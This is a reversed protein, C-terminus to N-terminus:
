CKMNDSKIINLMNIFKKVIVKEAFKEAFIELSKEKMAEITLKDTDILLEIKDCLEEINQPEFLFGNDEVLPILGGTNGFLPLNKTAISELAFMSMGEFRSPLVSVDSDTLYRLTEDHTARDIFKIFYLGNQKAKNVLRKKHIGEGIVVFSLKEDLDKRKHNLLILANLLDDVGKQEYKTEEMSALCLFKLKETIKGINHTNDFNVSSNDFTNPILCFVKESIKYINNELYYTKVFQIHHSNTSSIYKVKKIIYKLFIKSINHPLSNYFMTAETENIGHIRVLTKKIVEDNLYAVVFPLTEVFLMDYDQEKFLKNIIHAHYIPNIIARFKRVNTIKEMRLVRLNEFSLEKNNGLECYTMVDIRINNNYKLIAMILNTFANAYGTNQPYFTHCFVLIKEM